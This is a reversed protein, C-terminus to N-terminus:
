YSYDIQFQNDKGKIEKYKLEGIKIVIDWEINNKHYAEINKRTNKTDGYIINILNDKTIDCPFLLFYELNNSKLMNEKKNLKLRYKEKAKNNIIPKDNYYWEKYAEIVGPIEIYIIRNNYKIVYDCNMFGNYNEIFNSYRVDRYYDKNYILGLKRLAMSLLYEFQSTTIEGDEFKYLTGRSAKGTKIGITNLHEGLTESYYYKCWRDLCSTKIGLFDLSNIEKRTIYPKNNNIMYEQLKIFKIELDEYTPTKSIMNEQIIDLGLEKKMGNITGWNENIFIIPVDYCGRNRFDDYMLPRGLEKSKRLILKAAKEKSTVGTAYFGCWDVFKSWSNVSKDPCNKILWRADPLDWFSLESYTITKNRTESIEKFCKVYEDYKTLDFERRKNRKTTNKM